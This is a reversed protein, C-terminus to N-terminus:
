PTSMRRTPTGTWTSIAMATAAQTSCNACACKSMSRRTSIKGNANSSPPAESSSVLAGADPSAYRVAALYIREPLVALEGALDITGELVAGRAVRTAGSADFWGRLDTQSRLGIFADVGAVTGTKAWM